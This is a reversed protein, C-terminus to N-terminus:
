KVQLAELSLRVEDRRALALARVRELAEAVVRQGSDDGTCEAADAFADLFRCARPHLGHSGNFVRHWLEALIGAHRTLIVRDESHHLREPDTTIIIGQGALNEQRGTESLARWLGDECFLSEIHKLFVELAVYELALDGAKERELEEAAEEIERLALEELLEEISSHEEPDSAMEIARLMLDDRQQKLWHSLGEKHNVVERSVGSGSKIRNVLRNFSRFIRKQPWARMRKVHSAPLAHSEASTLIRELYGEQPAGLTHNRHDIYVPAQLRNGATDYISRYGKDYLGAPYGEYCDLAAEDSPQLRWLVGPVESGPAPLLTAYGRNNIIFRYDRLSAVGAIEAGPCRRRMQEKDMNSGYAFYLDIM